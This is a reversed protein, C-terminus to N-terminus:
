DLYREHVWGTQVPLGQADLVSVSLWHGDREIPEVETGNPLLRLSASGVGPGSRLNLGDAVTRRIDGNDARGGFVIARFRALDFAPGPDWERDPAIDDHGVIETFRSDSM